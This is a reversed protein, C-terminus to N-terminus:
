VTAAWPSDTEAPRNRHLGGTYYGTTGPEVNFNVTVEPLRPLGQDGATTDFVQNVRTGATYTKDSITDGAGFTM